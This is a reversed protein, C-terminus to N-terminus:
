RQSVKLIMKELAYPSSAAGGKVEHDAQAVASIATALREPRWNRLDRNMNRIQWDQMGIDSATAINNHVAAVKALQRLKLALAGTLEPGKLGTALAQRLLSIASATDGAVAMDAIQFATVQIRGSHYENVAAATIEGPIDTMLQRTAAALERIDSGVAASLASVAEPTAKRKEARLLQHVFDARQADKKLDECELVVAGAGTLTDLVKKGRVGGAHVVILCTDPAPEKVYELLDNDMAASAEVGSVIVIKPGGFLSPTTAELLQGNQYGSANLEVVEADGLEVQAKGKAGAVALERFYEQPGKVLILPAYIPEDWRRASAKRASGASSRAPM